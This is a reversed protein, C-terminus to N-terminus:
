RQAIGRSFRASTGSRRPSSRASRRPRQLIIVVVGVAALFFFVQAAGADVFVLALGILGFMVAMGRGAQRLERERSSVVGDDSRGFWAVLALPPGLALWFGVFFVVSGAVLSSASLWRGIFLLGVEWVVLAPVIWRKSM